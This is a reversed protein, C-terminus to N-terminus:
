GDNYVGCLYTLYGSYFFAGLMIVVDGWHEFREGFILTELVAEIMNVFVYMFFAMLTTKLPDGKCARVIMWSVLQFLNMKNGTISGCCAMVILM